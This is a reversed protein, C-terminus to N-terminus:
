SFIFYKQLTGFKEQPLSLTILRLHHFFLAPRYCATMSRGIVDWKTQNQFEAASM